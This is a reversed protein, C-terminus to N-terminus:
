SQIPSNDSPRTNNKRDHDQEPRLGELMLTALFDSLEDQRRVLETDGLAQLIFIGLFMSSMAATTLYADLPKILGQEAWAEFYKVSISMTPTIIQQFYRERLSQNILLEAIIVRFLDPPLQQMEEMRHRIYMKAFDGIEMDASEAFHLDREETENLQDLLALLLADKNEFYLYITGDAVGAERAIEKITDRAFGKAAFVNVAAELIQAKRARVLQAQVPDNQKDTM